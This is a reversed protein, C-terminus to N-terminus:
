PYKAATLILSVALMQGQSQGCRPREWGGERSAALPRPLPPSSPQFGEGEGWTLFSVQPCRSGAGAAIRLGEGCREDVPMKGGLSGRRKWLFWPLASIPSPGGGCFPVENPATQSRSAAGPSSRGSSREGEGPGERFLM